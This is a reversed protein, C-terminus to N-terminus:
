LLLATGPNWQGAHHGRSHRLDPEGDGGEPSWQRDGKSPACPLQNRWPGSGPVRWTRYVSLPPGSDIQFFVLDFQSM